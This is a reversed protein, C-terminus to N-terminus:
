RAEESEPAGGVWFVRETTATRNANRDRVTLKLGYRGPPADPFQIKFFEPIMDRALVHAEKRFRLQVADTGERTLGWKDALDGIIKAIAPGKREIEEVSVVLEVEYSAFQDSDPLLNYIEFYLAVPEDARYRMAPNPAIRFEHRAAADATLPEVDYALLMDSVGLTGAPFEKGDITVRGVAAHWTLPERAEVGVLYQRKAPLTIRWSELRALAASDGRFAVHETRTERQLEAAADDQVFLGLEVEGDAVGAKEGLRDLPVLSHVEVDMAGGAGRFRAVQVPLDYREPLSPASLSTPQISRYDEAYFRFDGAFTARRYGPNQRFVFVPGRVGYSWVTTIRGAADFDTSATSTPSFTAKRLPEGYRVYILGRDTEWGRIGYESLGFRMDAYAMRAMYEIRYENAPTLFLPDAKSWFRDRFEAQQERSLGSYAEEADKTMIRTINEFDARVDPEMLTLALEFAGSAEDVKGARHLGLGLALYAEPSSSAARVFQRAVALYEDILGEDYLYALLHANAGVHAPNARIATRFHHLMRERDDAGGDAIHHSRDLLNWVYRADDAALDADLRAINFPLNHRMSFRLWQTERMLGLQFHVEALTAADARGAADLARNLVREADLRIQQKLMLKGLELMYMPNDPDYRIATELSEQALKRDEFDLAKSSSRRALLQGRQFHAEALQPDLEIARDFLVLAGATDGRVYADIGRRLEDRARSIQAATEAFSGALALLIGTLLLSRSMARSKHSSHGSALM